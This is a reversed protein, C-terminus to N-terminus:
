GHDGTVLGYTASEVDFSETRDGRETITNQAQLKNFIRRAKSTVDSM